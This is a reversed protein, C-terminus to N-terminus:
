SLHALLDRDAPDTVYSEWPHHGGADHVEESSKQGPRFQNPSTALQDGKWERLGGYQDPVFLGTALSIATRSSTNSASETCCNSGRRGNTGQSERVLTDWACAYILEPRQRM